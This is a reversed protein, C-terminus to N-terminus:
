RNAGSRREEWPIGASRGRSPKKERDREASEFREDLPIEASKGRSLPEPDRTTSGFREGLPIEASRGRSLGGSDGRDRREDYSIDRSQRSLVLQKRADGAAPADADPIFDIGPSDADKRRKRADTRIGQIKAPKGPASPRTYAYPSRGSSADSGRRIAEVQDDVTDNRDKGSWETFVLFQLFAEPERFLLAGRGAFVITREVGGYYGGTRITITDGRPDFQFVRGIEGHRGWATESIGEEEFTIIQGVAGYDGGERIAIRRAGDEYRFTRPREGFAFTEELMGYRDFIFRRLVKEPNRPDRETMIDTSPDFLYMRKVTKKTDLVRVGGGGYQYYRTVPDRRTGAHETIFQDEM